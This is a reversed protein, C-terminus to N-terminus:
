LEASLFFIWLYLASQISAPDVVLIGGIDVLLANGECDARYEYDVGLLLDACDEGVWGRGTAVCGFDEADDVRQLGTVLM